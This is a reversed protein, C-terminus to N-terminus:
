AGPEQAAGANNPAAAVAAREIRAKLTEGQYFPIALFLLGDESEGVEHISCLNPHDLSGAARAEHM